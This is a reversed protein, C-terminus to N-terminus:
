SLLERIEKETKEDIDGLFAWGLKEKTLYENALKLVDDKTVSEINKIREEPTELRGIYFSKAAAKQARKAPNEEAFLENALFTNKAYRFLEDEIDKKTEELIEITAKVSEVLKEKNVPTLSFVKSALSTVEMMVNADYAIQLEM